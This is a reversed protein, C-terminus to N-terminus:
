PDCNPKYLSILMHHVSFRLSVPLVDSDIVDDGEVGKDGHAFELANQKGDSGLLMGTVCLVSDLFCETGSSEGKSAFGGNSELLFLYRLKM